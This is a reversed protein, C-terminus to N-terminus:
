GVVYVFHCRPKGCLWSRDDHDEVGVVRQYALSRRCLFEGLADVIRDVSELLEIGDGLHDDDAVPWLTPRIPHNAPHVLRPSAPLPEADAPTSPSGDPHDPILYHTVSYQRPTEPCRENMASDVGVVIEGAL